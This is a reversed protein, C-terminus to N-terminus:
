PVEDESDHHYLGPNRPPLSLVSRDEYAVYYTWLLEEAEQQCNLETEERRGYAPLKDGSAKPEDSGEAGVRPGPM